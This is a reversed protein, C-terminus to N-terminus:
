RKKENEDPWRSYPHNCLMTNYYCVEGTVEAGLWAPRAFSQDERELEIEALILGRNEGFFEDIEWTNGRHILTSRKKEILPQLCLNDLMDRADALPIEYEYETRTMSITAGKVTLYGRDGAIRVRVSREPETCLYGQRYSMAMALGRWGEGVVLFKREIEKAM